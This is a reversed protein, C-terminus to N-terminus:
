AIAHLDAVGSRALVTRRDCGARGRRGMTRGAYTTLRRTTLPQRRVAACRVFGAAGTARHRASLFVVTDVIGAVRRRNGVEAQVSVLDGHASPPLEYRSPISAPTGPCPSALM